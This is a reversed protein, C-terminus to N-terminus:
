NEAYTGGLSQKLSLWGCPIIAALRIGRLCQAHMKSLTHTEGTDATSFTRNKTPAKKADLSTATVKAVM